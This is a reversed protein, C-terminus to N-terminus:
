IAEGRVSVSVITRVTLRSDPVRVGSFIRMGAVVITDRLLGAKGSEPWVQVGDRWSWRSM